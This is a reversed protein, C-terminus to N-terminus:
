GILPMVRPITNKNNNTQATTKHNRQDNLLKEEVITRYMEEFQEETATDLNIQQELICCLLDLVFSSYYRKITSVKIAAKVHYAFENELWQCVRLHAIAM